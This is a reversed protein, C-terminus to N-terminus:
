SCPSCPAQKDRRTWKLLEGDTSTSTDYRVLIHTRAHTRTTRLEGGVYVLMSVLLLIKHSLNQALTSMFLVGVVAHLIVFVLTHWLFHM